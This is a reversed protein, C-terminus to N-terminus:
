SFGPDSAQVASGRRLIEVNHQGVGVGPALRATYRTAHPFAARCVRPGAAPANPNTFVELYARERLHPDAVLDRATHVTGAPM